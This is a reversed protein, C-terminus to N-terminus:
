RKPKLAEEYGAEYGAEFAKKLDEELNGDSYEEWAISNWAHEVMQKVLKSGFWKKWYYELM